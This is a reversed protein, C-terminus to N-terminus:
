TRLNVWKRRYLRVKWWDIWLEPVKVQNVKIDKEEQQTWTQRQIKSSEFSIPKRFNEYTSWMVNKM